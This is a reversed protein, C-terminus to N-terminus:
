DSYQQIIQSLIFKVHPLFLTLYTAFILVDRTQVFFLTPRIGGRGRGWGIGSILACNLYIVYLGSTYHMGCTILGLQLCSPLLLSWVHVDPFIFDHVVLSVYVRIMRWVYQGYRWGGSCIERMTYVIVDEEGGLWVGCCWLICNDILRGHVKKEHSLDKNVCGVVEWLAVAM